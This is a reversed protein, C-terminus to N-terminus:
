AVTRCKRRLATAIEAAEREIRGVVIGAIAARKALHSSCVDSSWDRGCSTHRRSMSVFVGHTVIVAAAGHLRDADRDVAGVLRRNDVARPLRARHGLIAGLM